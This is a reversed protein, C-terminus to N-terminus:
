CNEHVVALLHQINVPKRFVRLASLQAAATPEFATVVIVPIKAFKANELMAARFEPGSMIPMRLDMIILCPLESNQLYELAEIGNAATAVNFGDIQLIESLFNRTDEEDEVILV